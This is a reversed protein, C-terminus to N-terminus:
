ISKKSFYLYRKGPLDLCKIMIPINYRKTKNKNKNKKKFLVMADWQCIYVLGTSPTAVKFNSHCFFLLSESQELKRKPDFGSRSALCLAHLTFYLSLVSQMKEIQRQFCPFLNKIINLLQILDSCFLIKFNAKPSSVSPTILTSCGCHVSLFCMRIIFYFLFVCSASPCILSISLFLFYTPSLCASLPFICFACSTHFHSLPQLVSTFRTIRLPPPTSLHPLPAAM